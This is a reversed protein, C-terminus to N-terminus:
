SNAWIIEDTEADLLVKAVPADSRIAVDLADTTTQIYRTIQRRRSRNNLLAYVLALLAGGAEAIALYYQQLFLAAAACLVLIGVYVSFGPQLLRNLKRNM